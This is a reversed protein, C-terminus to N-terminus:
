IAGSVTSTSVREAWIHQLQRRKGPTIPITHGEGSGSHLVQMLGNAYM